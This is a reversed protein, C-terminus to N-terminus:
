SSFRLLLLAAEEASLHTVDLHHGIQAYAPRRQELLAALRAFRGEDREALMLGLLGMAWGAFITQMLRNQQAFELQQQCIEIAAVIVLLVRYFEVCSM